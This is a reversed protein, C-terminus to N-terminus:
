GEVLVMVRAALAALHLEFAHEKGEQGKRIRTARPDRRRFTDVDKGSWM